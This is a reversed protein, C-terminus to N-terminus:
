ASPDKGHAKSSRLSPRRLSSSVPSREGREDEWHDSACSVPIWMIHGERTLELRLELNGSITAHLLRTSEAEEMSAAVLRVRRTLKHGLDHHESM